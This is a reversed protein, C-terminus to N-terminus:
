HQFTRMEISALGTKTEVHMSSMDMRKIGLGVLMGMGAIVTYFLWMKSLSRVQTDRILSSQLVTLADFVESDVAMSSGDLLKTAIGPSVGAAVLDHFRGRMGGQFIAQGAVISFGAALTRVFGFTATGTAVDESELHAQLAVLPPQFLAGIGFCITIQFTVVRTVALEAPLTTFLGFGMVLFALGFFIIELYRGTAHMYLGCPLTTFFLTGAMVLSWVGSQLPSFGLVSQFYLPLFYAVSIYCFGHAACIFLTCGNSRRGALIRSLPMIPYLAFKCEVIVFLALMLLGLILLSIVIPSSWPLSSGGLDLGLLLMLTGATLSLGGLWDLAALGALLPTQPSHIKLLYALLFISTVNCPM